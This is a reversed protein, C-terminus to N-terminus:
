SKRQRVVEFLIIGAAIAANLSETHGSMPINVAQDTLRRAQDGAGEAEGGIIVASPSRFDAEWIAISGAMEALFFKLRTKYRAAIEDWALTQIPLHFHAGMASRVVKPNYADATGPTLLVQDVGAASATRFLTGLNGPDRVADAILVFDPQPKAPLDKMQAVALIGQSTETDSVSALTKEPVEDAQVGMLGCKELLLRGRVSITEAFLIQELPWGAQVAEEVLRIGELVFVNQEARTKRDTLLSRIRQIKPNHPSTIM